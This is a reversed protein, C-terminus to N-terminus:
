CDGNCPFECHGGMECVQRMGTPSSSDPWASSNNKIYYISCNNISAKIALDIYNSNRKEKRIKMRNAKEIKYKEKATM